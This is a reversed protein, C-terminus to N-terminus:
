RYNLQIRSVEREIERRERDIRTKERRIENIESFDTANELQTDLGEYDGNLERLQNTLVYVQAGDQNAKKLKGIINKQCLGYNLINNRSGVDYANNISCYEQVGAQYGQSYLNQDVQVSFESCRANWHAVREEMDQGRMAESHGIEGWNATACRKETSVCGSAILFVLSLVIFYGQKKM